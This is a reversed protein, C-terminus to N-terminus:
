HTHQQKAQMQDLLICVEDLFEPGLNRLQRYNGKSYRALWSELFDLDPSKADEPKADDESEFQAHEGVFAHEMGLALKRLMTEVNNTPLLRGQERIARIVRLRFTGTHYHDILKLFEQGTLATQPRRAWNTWHIWDGIFRFAIAFLVLIELLLVIALVIPSFTFDLRSALASSQIGQTMKMLIVAGSFILGDRWYSELELSGSFRIWPLQILKVLPWIPLIPWWYPQTFQGSQASSIALISWSALYCYLIGLVFNNSNLSLIVVVICRLLLLPFREEIAEIPASLRWIRLQVVLLSPIMFFGIALLASLSVPQSLLVLCFILHSLVDVPQIVSLLQLASVFGSSNEIRALYAQTALRERGLRGDLMLKAISRRIWGAIDPPIKGLRVVQQYAVEKLWQSNSHFANRLMLVLVFPPVIGAVELAWKRDQLTGKLFASLILRGLYLRIEEPLKSPQSAFGEQLISLLHLTGPSWRFPEPIWRQVWIELDEYETRGYGLFQYFMLKSILGPTGGTVATMVRRIEAIIPQLVEAPQTQCLVVATERWRADILLQSPSVRNPERLVVCTAFYEQFRRHSFTFQKSEGVGTVMESRALKIYELADLQTDLNEKWQIGLEAMAKKIDQRTPSLGLGVDAAISFAVNEATVRVESPDLEFRRWLRERDRNLRTQIYTEFVSHANEPFPHGSRIHECLLGLFMPNSAMARFEHATESLRGILEDQLERKLDAKQVLELRRKESLPLIRFRPWAFIGPGRFQRSAIIGRCQNMGHLFDSIAGAYSKIATDAEISSLVEPLEDFSDFLFLWTGNGLGRDFEEELFEEIDRDNARNLSKLIFSKILSRDPAQNDRELEKLNVYIPIMAQNSRSKMAHQVISQAVHRLAVSKGSGPDGELLVLREQSTELAKSLSRERRLGSQSRSFFPLLGFAQRRGEAEVEAELEAFRYDSWVELNNLRRIESEIHDAFRRRRANRRLDKEDYFLPLFEETFLDKIKSLYLLFYYLGLLVLAFVLIWGILQFIIPPIQEGFILSLIAKFGNIIKEFDPM